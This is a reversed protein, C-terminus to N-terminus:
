PQPEVNKEPQDVPEAPELSRAIARAALVQIKIGTRASAIRLRRHLKESIKFSMNHMKEPKM